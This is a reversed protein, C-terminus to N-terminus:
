DVMGRDDTEGEVFMKETLSRDTRMMGAHHVGISWEFLRKLHENRSKRVLPEFKPRNAMSNLVLEFLAQQKRDQAIRLLADAATKTEGRSHVFIMAQHGAHLAAQVHDYCVTDFKAVRKVPDNESIGILTQQLPVPRFSGDFHFVNKPDVRLFM